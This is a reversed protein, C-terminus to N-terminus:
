LLLLLLSRYNSFSSLRQLRCVSTLGFAGACYLPFDLLLGGGEPLCPLDPPGPPARIVPIFIKCSLELAHLYNASHDAHMSDSHPATAQQGRVSLQEALHLPKCSGWCFTPVVSYTSGTKHVVTTSHAAAAAPPHQALYTSTDTCDATFSLATDWLCRLILTILCWNM